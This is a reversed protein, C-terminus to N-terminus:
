RGRDRSARGGGGPLENANKQRRHPDKGAWTLEGMEIGFEQELQQHISELRSEAEDCTSAHGGGRSAEVRKAYGDVEYSVQGDVPVQVQIARRDPRIAHLVVDSDLDGSRMLDPAGVRFGQRQLVTVLGNVIYSRQEEEMQREQARAKLADVRARADAMENQAVAWAERGLSLSVQETAQEAAVVESGCWAMIVEDARLGCLRVRLDDLGALAKRRENEWARAAAKVRDLHTEVVLTLQGAADMARDLDGADLDVRIGGLAQEVALSGSRDHKARRSADQSELRALIRALAGEVEARKQELEQRLKEAQEEAQADAAAERVLTGLEDLEAAVQGLEQLDSAAAAQSSLQALQAMSRDLTTGAYEAYSAGRHGEIERELASCTSSASGRGLELQRQLEEEERKRRRREEERAKRQREEELERRRMENLQARSYKPSGSM